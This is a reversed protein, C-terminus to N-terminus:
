SINFHRQKFIGNKNQKTKKAKKTKNGRTNM